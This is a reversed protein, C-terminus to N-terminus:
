LKKLMSTLPVSARSPGSQCSMITLSFFDFDLLNLFLEKGGGRSDVKVNSLLSQVLFLAILLSEEKGLFSAAYYLM